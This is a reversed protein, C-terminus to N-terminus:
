YRMDDYRGGREYDRYGCDYERRGRDHERHGGRYYDRAGKYDGYRGGRHRDDSAPDRSYHSDYPRPDYPRGDAFLSDIDNAMGYSLNVHTVSGRCAKEVNMVKGMWETANLATIAADVEEATETTVFVFGRSLRQPFVEEPYFAALHSARSTCHRHKGGISYDYGHVILKAHLSMERRGKRVVDTGGGPPVGM